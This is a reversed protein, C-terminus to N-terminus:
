ELYHRIGRSSFVDSRETLVTGNCRLNDIVQRNVLNQDVM